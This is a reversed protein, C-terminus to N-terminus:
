NDYKISEKLVWFTKELDCFNEYSFAKPPLYTRGGMGMGLGAGMGSSPNQAAATMAEAASFQTYRGLDGVIGM